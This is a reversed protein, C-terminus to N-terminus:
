VKIQTKTMKTRMLVQKISFAHLFIATPLLVSALLLYPFEVFKFRSVAVGFDSFYYSFIFSYATLSLVCLSVLNWIYIGRNKIFGKYVAISIFIASLEVFIRFSQMAIPFHVPIEELATRMFKRNVLIIITLIIPIVVLLPIRPPMDFSKLIGTQALIYLYSLWLVIGLGGIIKQNFPYNRFLILLMGVTIFSLIYFSVEVM